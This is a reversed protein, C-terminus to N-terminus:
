KVASLAQPDILLKARNSIVPVISRLAGTIIIEALPGEFVKRNSKCKKRICSTIVKEDM